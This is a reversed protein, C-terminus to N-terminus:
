YTKCELLAKKADEASRIKFERRHDIYCDIKNAANLYMITLWYEGDLGDMLQLIGVVLGAKEQQSLPLSFLEFKAREFNVQADLLSQAFSVRSILLLFLLIKKM